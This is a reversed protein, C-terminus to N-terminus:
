SSQLERVVHSPGLGRRAQTHKLNEVQTLLAKSRVFFACIRQPFDLVTIALAAQLLHKFADCM